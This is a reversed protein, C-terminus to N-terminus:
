TNDIGQDLEVGAAQVLIGNIVQHKCVSKLKACYGNQQPPNDEPSRKRNEKKGIV